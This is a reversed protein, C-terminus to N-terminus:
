KKLIIKKYIYVLTFVSIWLTLIPIILPKVIGNPYQLNLAEESTFGETANLITQDDVFGIQGDLSVITEGNNSRILVNEFLNSSCDSSLSYTDDGENFLTIVAISGEDYETFIDPYSYSEQCTITLISDEGQNKNYDVVIITLSQRDETYTNNIQVAYIGNEFYYMPTEIYYDNYALIETFDKSKIAENITAKTSDLTENFMVILSLFYTIILMIIVYIIKKIM